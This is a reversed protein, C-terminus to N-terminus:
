CLTMFPLNVDKKIVSYYELTCMYGMKRPWPRSGGHCRGRGLGGQQWLSKRGMICVKVEMGRRQVAERVLPTSGSHIGADVGRQRRSTDECSKAGSM